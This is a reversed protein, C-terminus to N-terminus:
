QLGTLKDLIQRTLETALHVLVPSILILMIEEPRSLQALSSMVLLMLVFKSSLM